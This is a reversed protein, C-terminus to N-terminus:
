SQGPGVMFCKPGHSQGAGHGGGCRGAADIRHKHKHKYSKYSYYVVVRGHGTM